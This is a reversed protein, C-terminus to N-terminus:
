LKALVLQGETASPVMGDKFARVLVATAIGSHATQVASSPPWVASTELPRSGDLTYRLTAGATASTTNFGPWGTNCWGGDLLGNLVPIAVQSPM